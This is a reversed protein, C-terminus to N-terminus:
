NQYKMTLRYNGKIFHDYYSGFSSAKKFANWVEVPVNQHVYEGNDTKIILFGKQSDCSYYSAGRVWSSKSTNVSEHMKFTSAKILQSAQAYNAFSAPLKNCDQGHTIQEAGLLLIISLFVIHKM